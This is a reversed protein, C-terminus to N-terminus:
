AAKGLVGEMRNLLTKADRAVTKRLTADERLDAADARTLKGCAERILKAFDPDGTINMSPLVRCLERVNEVLSDRFYGGKEGEGREGKPVYNDLRESMHAVADRLRGEAHSMAQEVAEREANAIDTRISDLYDDGIDARFDAAAPWPMFKLDSSFYGLVSSEAPFDSEEYMRGLRLKAAEKYTPYNVAFDKVAKDFDEIKESMKTQFNFFGDNSLIRSGQDTWPLTLHYFTNRLDSSARKVNAFHPKSILQKVYRGAGGQAEYEDAVKMSVDRDVRQGGWASISLNVLMARSSLNFDKETM